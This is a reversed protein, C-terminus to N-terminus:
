QDDTHGSVRYAMREFCQEPIEAPVFPLNCGDRTPLFPTSLENLPKFRAVTV